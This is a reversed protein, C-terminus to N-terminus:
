RIKSQANEREKKSPHLTRNMVKHTSNGEIVIETTTQVVVEEQIEEATLDVLDIELIKVGIEEIEKEEIHDKKQEFMIKEENKEKVLIMAKEQNEADTVSQELHLIIIGVVKAFGIEMEPRIKTETGELTEIEEEEIREELNNIEVTEKEAEEIVATEEIMEELDNIEVTEKGAEEIVATEEIMEELDNIEQIGKQEQRM